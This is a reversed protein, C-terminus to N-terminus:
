VAAKRKRWAYGILGVASIGFLTLSAPEPTTFTYTLTGAIGNTDTMFTETGGPVSNDQIIFRTITTGTGTFKGLITPDTITIALNLNMTNPPPTIDASLFAPLVQGVLSINPASSTSTTTESGTLSFEVSTLTGLAPNFLPVSPGFIFNNGLNLTIAPNQTITFNEM